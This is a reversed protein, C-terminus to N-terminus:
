HDIRSGSGGRLRRATQGARQHPPANDVQSRIEGSVVYAFVVGSHHHPKSAGGPAYDVQVATLAKGPVNPLEKSFMPLGIAMDSEGFSGSTGIRDGSRSSPGCDSERVAVAIAVGDQCTPPRRGVEPDIIANTRGTLRPMTPCYLYPNVPKSTTACTPPLVGGPYRVDRGDLHIAYLSRPAFRNSPGSARAPSVRALESLGAVTKGPMRRVVIGAMPVPFIERPSPGCSSRWKELDM